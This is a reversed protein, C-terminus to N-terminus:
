NGPYSYTSYDLLIDFLGEEGSGDWGDILIDLGRQPDAGLLDGGLIVLLWKTNWVSRGVLRKYAKLEEPTPTGNIPGNHYARMQAYRRVSLFEAPRDLAASPIWNSGLAEPDFALQTPLFQDLVTWERHPVDGM